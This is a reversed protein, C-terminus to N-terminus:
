PPVLAAIRAASEAPAAGGDDNAIVLHPETPEDFSQDVGVLEMAEGALAKRILGKQNRAVLTAHAVRLYVEVYGELNARNWEHVERFLSVTACVVNIGQDALLKCMRSLRRANRLRDERGYGLDNGMVERFVDGDLRVVPTARARLVREVETAVTTKGSGPLGTIWVVVGSM